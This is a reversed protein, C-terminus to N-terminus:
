YPFTFWRWERQQKLVNQVAELKVGAEQLYDVNIKRFWSINVEFIKCVQTMTIIYEKKGYYYTLVASMVKPNKKTLPNEEYYDLLHNEIKELTSKNLNVERYLAQIAFMLDIYKQRSLYDQLFRLSPM